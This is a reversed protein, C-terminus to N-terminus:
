RKAADMLVMVHAAVSKALATLDYGGELLSVVRGQAHEDAVRILADTAWAFDAETLRLNGLPDREHADFGASIIILEPKFRELSPIVGVEFAERFEMSGAGLHLPCNLINGQGVETAEGTGPYAPFEHTSAYFVSPDNWFIEQTGNGHHADWDMIAVRKLGHVKQAHRAAVAANNFFCFGMASKSEAHHGPPRIACFANRSAGTVVQDVAYNSAGLAYLTAEMSGASMVTDDDFHHHGDDPAKDQVHAVYYPDHALEAVALEAKPALERRLTDFHGHALVKEIARLRDAREPHGTPTEHKLFAEHTVYLTSM